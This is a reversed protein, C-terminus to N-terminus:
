GAPAPAPAPAGAAPAAAAPAAAGGRQGLERDLLLLAASNERAMQLDGVIVTARAVEDIQERLLDQIILLTQPDQTKSVMDYAQQYNQTIFQEHQLVQQWAELPSGYNVPQAPIARVEVTGGRNIIYDMLMQAHAREEDHQIRLWHAMGRLNMRAFYSSMALYLFASSLELQILHNLLQQIQDTLM